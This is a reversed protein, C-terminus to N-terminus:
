AVEAKIQSELLKVVGAARAASRIAQEEIWDYLIGQLWEKTEDPVSMSISGGQMDGLFVALREIGDLDCRITDVDMTATAIPNSPIPQRGPQLVPQPGPQSAAVRKKAM